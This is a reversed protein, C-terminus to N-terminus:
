SFLQNFDIPMVFLTFIDNDVAAEEAIGVRGNDGDQTYARLDGATNAIELEDGYAINAAAIGRSIGLKRIRAASGSAPNNQLTGLVRGAGAAGPLTCTYDESGAVVTSYQSSTLDVQTKYTVDLVSMPGAM